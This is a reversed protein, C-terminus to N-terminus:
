SARGPCFSHLLSAWILGQSAAVLMQYLRRSAIPLLRRQNGKGLVNITGGALDIDRWRMQAAESVRLGTDFMLLVALQYPALLGGKQLLLDAEPETAAM